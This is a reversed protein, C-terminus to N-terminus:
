YLLYHLTELAPFLSKQYLLAHNVIIPIGHLVIPHNIIAHQQKINFAVCPKWPLLTYNWQMLTRCILIWHALLLAYSLVKLGLCFPRRKASSVKLRMKTFSFTLIEILIESFNTGLPGILLIGANTWIISQRRGPSLVNDSGTATLNSVCIHTM